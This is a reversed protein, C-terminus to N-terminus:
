ALRTTWRRIRNLSCRPNPGIFPNHVLTPGPAGTPTVQTFREFEGYSLDVHRDLPPIGPNTDATAPNFPTGPAYVFTHMTGLNPGFPDTPKPDMVVVKGAMTPMGFVDLGELQPESETPSIQLRLPGFTQTYTNLAPSDLPELFRSLGVYLQESVNFVSSGAVGVDEFEVLQGTNPDPYRLRQVGLAEATQDSLLVGSAGTDFFAEINYVTEGFIETSLVPGDPTRRLVANIRPQDLAAPYVGPLDTGYVAAPPLLQVIVCCVAIAARFRDIAIRNPRRKGLELPDM